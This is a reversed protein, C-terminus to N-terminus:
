LSLMLKLLVLKIQGNRKLEDEAEYCANLISRWRAATKSTVDKISIDAMQLMIHIVNVTLQKDKSLSDVLLLREYQSSSIIQRAVKTAEFLPHGPDSILTTLLGPKGGSIAVATNLLKDEIDPYNAKLDHTNPKNIHITQLRSLITPLLSQKEDTTMIILADSPPEELNKLLANQAPISLKNAYEIIVVRNIANSRKIKLKFFNDLTRVEEVSIMKDNKPSIVNAYPYQRIDKIGLITEAILSAISMKGIGNPGVILLGHPPREIIKAISNKSSPHLLLQTM